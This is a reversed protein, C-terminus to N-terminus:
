GVFTRCAEVIRDIDRDDLFRSVPFHVFDRELRASVPCAAPDTGWRETAIPSVGLPDLWLTFANINRALLHEVLADRDVGPPVLAGLSTYLHGGTDRQFRFGLPELRSRLVAANRRKTAMADLYHPLFADLLLRGVRDLAEIPPPEYLGVEVKYVATNALRRYLPGYLLRFGPVRLLMLTNLFRAPGLRGQPLPHGSSAAALDVARRSSLIGGRVVPAVKSLSYMAYDGHWGVPHGDLTIGGLARACDEILILGHRDAMARFRAADAPLGFTHLLVIASVSSLLEDTCAAPDLQATDPDVDAFVPTIGHREMVGVFDHSIYGPMLIRSGALGADIVALEFASKGYTTLVRPRDPLLSDLVALGRGRHLLGSALEPLRLRERAAIFPGGRGSM